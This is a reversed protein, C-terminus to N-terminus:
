SLTGCGAKQKVLYPISMNSSNKKKNVIFISRTTCSSSCLNYLEYSIRLCLSLSLYPSSFIIRTEIKNFCSLILYVHTPSNVNKMLSISRLLLILGGLLVYKVRVYNMGISYNDFSNNIMIYFIVSDGYM